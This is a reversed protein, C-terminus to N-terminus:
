EVPCAMWHKVVVSGLVYGGSGALAGNVISPMSVSPHALCGGLLGLGGGVAGALAMAGFPLSVTEPTDKQTM